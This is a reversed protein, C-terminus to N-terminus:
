KKKLAFALLRSRFEDSSGAIVQLEEEVKLQEDFTNFMSKTLAQKTLSLATASMQSLSTMIKKTEEEFKEDDFVKYLMGIREAEDATMKEALMMLASAKQWGIMRPLVHTGGSDPILGLKGFAQTFTASRAAVVIDCCLAINAGAGTAIGNVAAVVPKKMNRILSVLPNLQEPLIRSMKSLDSAEILDQGACFARGKGTLCVVSVSDDDDCEKLTDHLLLAMERNISNMKEERNITVVAVGDNIQKLVLPM